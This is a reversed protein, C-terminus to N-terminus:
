VYTEKQRKVEAIYLTMAEDKSIGERSKWADWKARATM